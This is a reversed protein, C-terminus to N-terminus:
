PNGGAFRQLGLFGIPLPSSGDAALDALAEGIVPAFKFGHGSFGTAVIVNPHSPHRDLIFHSDPSNDYMCVGMSLLPGDADPLHLRLGQRFEAEDAATASRDLSDPDCPAGKAHLATKFGPHWPLEPFGYYLSGDDREIAWCPFRGLDFLGAKLPQVWGLVQRTIGIEVGLGRCLKASWPGGALILSQGRYEGRDTRVRVGTRDAAWEVVPERAHLEAGRRSALVALAGVAREPIVLGADREVMGEFSEPVRLAPFRRCLETHSLM